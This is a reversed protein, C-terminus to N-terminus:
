SMIKTIKFSNPIMIVKNNPFQEQLYELMHKLQNCNFMKYDAGIVLTEDKDLKVSNIKFHSKNLEKKVQRKNM